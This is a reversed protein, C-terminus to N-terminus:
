GKIITPKTLIKTLIVGATFFCAPVVFREVIPHWPSMNVVPLPEKGDQTKFPVTKKQAEAM